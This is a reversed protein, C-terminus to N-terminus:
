KSRFLTPIKYEYVEEHSYKTGYDMSSKGIIKYHFGLLLAQAFKPLENLDRDAFTMM